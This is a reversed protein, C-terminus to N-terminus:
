ACAVITGSVVAILVVTLGCSRGSSIMARGAIVAGASCGVVATVSVVVSSFGTAVVIVTGAVITVTRSVSAAVVAYIGAMTGAMRTMSAVSEAGASVTRGSHRRGDTRVARDHMMRPM